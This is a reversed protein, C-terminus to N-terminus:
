IEDVPDTDAALQGRGNMPSVALPNMTSTSRGYMSDVSPRNSFSSTSSVESIADRIIHLIRCFLLGNLYDIYV